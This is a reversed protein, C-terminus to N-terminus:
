GRRRWFLHIRDDNRHHGHKALFGLRLLRVSCGLDLCRSLLGGQCKLRQIELDSDGYSANRSGNSWIIFVRM